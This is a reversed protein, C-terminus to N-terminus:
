NRDLALARNHAQELIKSKNSIPSFTLPSIMILWLHAETMTNPWLHYQQDVMRFSFWICVTNNEMCPPSKLKKKQMWACDSFLKSVNTDRVWHFMQAWLIFDLSNSLLIIPKVDVSGCTQSWPEKQLSVITCIKLIITFSCQPQNIWAPPKWRALSRSKGALNTHKQKHVHM